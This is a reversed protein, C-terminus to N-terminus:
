QETVNRHGHVNTGETFMLAFDEGPLDFGLIAVIPAPVQQISSHVRGRRPQWAGNLFRDGSSDTQFKGSPLKQRASSLDVGLFDGVSEVAM